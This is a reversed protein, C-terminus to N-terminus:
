SHYTSLWVSGMLRGRREIKKGLVGCCWGLYLFPLFPFDMYILRGTQSMFGFSFVNLFFFYVAFWMCAISLSPLLSLFSVLMFCLSPSNHPICFLNSQSYRTGKYQIQISISNERKCPDINPKCPRM